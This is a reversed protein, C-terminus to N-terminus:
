GGLRPAVAKAFRPLRAKRFLARAEWGQGAANARALVAGAAATVAGPAEALMEALLGDPDRRIVGHATLVRTPFDQLNMTVLADCGGAVAAGLVHVDDPDPLAVALPAPEVEAAPFLARAQAIEGRVLDDPDGRRVGARRWEELIRASWVPEFLGASAVNLLVARMVTPYLVNADLCCRM